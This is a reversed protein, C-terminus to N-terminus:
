GDSAEAGARIVEAGRIVEAIPGIVYIILWFAPYVLVWEWARVPRPPYISIPKPKNTM